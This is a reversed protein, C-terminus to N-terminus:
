HHCKTCVGAYHQRYLTQALSDMQKDCYVNLDKQDVLQDNLMVNAEVSTTYDALLEDLFEDTAHRTAWHVTVFGVIILVLVVIIFRQRIITKEWPFIKM